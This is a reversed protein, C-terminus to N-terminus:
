VNLIVQIFTNDKPDSDDQENGEYARGIMLNLDKRIQDICDGAAAAVTFIVARGASDVMLLTGVPVDGQASALMMTVVHGSGIEAVVVIDNDAAVEDYDWSTADMHIIEVPVGLPHDNASACKSIDRSNFTEGTRTVAYAAYVVGGNDRYHGFGSSPDALILPAWGRTAFTDDAM